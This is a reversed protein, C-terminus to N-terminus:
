LCTAVGSWAVSLQGAIEDRGPDGGLAPQGLRLNVFHKIPPVPHRAGPTICMTRVVTICMTRRYTEVMHIVPAPAEVM